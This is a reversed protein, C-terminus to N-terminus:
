EPTRGWTSCIRSDLRRSHQWPRGHWACCRQRRRAVHMGNANLIGGYTKGCTIQSDKTGVVCPTSTMRGPTCWRIRFSTRPLYPNEPNGDFAFQLVRTGPMDIPGALARVDPTIVGLDEAIFPLTGLDGLVARFFETGSCAGMPGIPGDADGSTHALRRCIWSLSGLSDPRRSGALCARPRYVVPLRDAAARGTMSPIVGSHGQASFYDPPVGAVFRPRRSEDLMFLEPNAWVDSSDPSVFFPLDGILRVTRAHAYGKLTGGASICSSRWAFTTSKAPWNKAPRPWPLRTGGFM